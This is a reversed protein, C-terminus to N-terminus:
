YGKPLWSSSLDNPDAPRLRLLHWWIPSWRLALVSTSQRRPIVESKILVLHDGFNRQFDTDVRMTIMVRVRRLLQEINEAWTPSGQGFGSQGAFCFKEGIGRKRVKNMAQKNKVVRIGDELLCTCCGQKLNKSFFRFYLAGENHYFDFSVCVAHWWGGLALWYLEKPQVVFSYARNSHSGMQDYISKFCVM